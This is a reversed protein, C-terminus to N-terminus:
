ILVEPAHKTQKGLRLSWTANDAAGFEKEVADPTTLGAGVLKALDTRWGPLPVGPVMAYSDVPTDEDFVYEQKEEDWRSEPFDKASFHQQTGAVREKTVPVLTWEPRVALDPYSSIYQWGDPAVFGMMRCNQGEALGLVKREEATMIKTCFYLSPVLKKAKTEWLDATLTKGQQKEFNAFDNELIYRETQKIADVSLKLIERHAEKQLMARQRKVSEEDWVAHAKNVDSISM